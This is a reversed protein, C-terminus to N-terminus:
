RNTLSLWYVSIENRHRWLPHPPTECWWVWSQKRLRKNLRPNFFVDFSRTVPRQSPFEGTVLSNGACIALLASFTEMQHRWWTLLDYSHINHSVKNVCNVNYRTRSFTHYTLCHMCSIWLMELRKQRPKNQYIKPDLTGMQIVKRFKVLKDLGADSNHCPYTILDM